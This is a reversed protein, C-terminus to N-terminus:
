PRLRLALEHFGKNFAMEAPTLDNAKAAKNGGFKLLAEAVPMSGNDAAIHLPTFGDTDAINPDAGAALLVEVIAVDGGFTAAGVPSNKAFHSRGLVNLDAGNRILLVACDLHRFAGALHLPTFGEPSFSSVLERHHHLIDKLVGWKGLVSAEYLTLKKKQNGAFQALDTQGNFALFTPVTMGNPDTQEVLEPHEVILKKAGIWDQAHLTKWIDAPSTSMIIVMTLAILANM